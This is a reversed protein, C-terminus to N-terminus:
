VATSKKRSSTSKYFILMLLFYLIYAMVYVWAYSLSAMNDSYKLVIYFAAFMCIDRIIRFILLAWNKGESLMNSQFVNSLCLFVTSFTLVRMVPKMDAFTSGYFSAIVGSLLFVFVFPIFSCVFNILLMKRLMKDHSSPEESSGSLYSLVVNSLLTPIFIIISNWQSAASWIGVDGLSAFKTLIMTGGWNCLMYSFEQIAVPFSFLLLEGTVTVNGQASCYAVIVARFNLVANAFQSLALAIFSGVVGFKYTLISATLVLVLGSIISNIGIRKFSKFGALVGASVTNIARFVIIVGLARFAPATSPEEIYAALKDAFVILLCCLFVSFALTTILSSRIISRIQGPHNQVANAIYKTASFGLGFTSFSAIHFMTTKVMGYEGYLDKGLFRAIIIGALLMLCNGLGNGFVTWFSDKFLKSNLLKAKTNQFM